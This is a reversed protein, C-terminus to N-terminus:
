DGYMNVYKLTKKTVIIRNILFSLFKHVPVFLIKVFWFYGYLLPGYNIDVEKINVPPFVLSFKYKHKLFFLIKNKQYNFESLM